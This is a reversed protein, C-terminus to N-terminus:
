IDLTHHRHTAMIRVGEFVQIAHFCWNSFKPRAGDPYRSRCLRKPLWKPVSQPLTMTKMDTPGHHTVFTLRDLMAHKCYKFLHKLFVIHRPGPNNGYRSLINLAYMITILTHLMGHWVDNTPCSEQLSVQHMRAEPGGYRLGQYHFTAWLTRYGRKRQVKQIPRKSLRIM